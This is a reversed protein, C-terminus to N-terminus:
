HPKLVLRCLEGQKVQTGALPKQEVVVGTGSIQIELKLDKLLRLSKRLSLGKLDPMAQYMREQGLGNAVFNEDNGQHLEFNMERKEKVSMMDSLNSMVEQLAIMPLIIRQSSEVLGMGSKTEAPSPSFVPLKAFVFLLFKPKQRPIVSFVMQNKEYRRFNGSGTYFLNEVYLTGSSVPGEVMLGELLNRIEGAVDPDVTEEAVEPLLEFVKGDKGAIKDIARPTVRMGGIILSNLATVIHLPTATEAVSDFYNNQDAQFLQEDISNNTNSVFDVKLPDNLGLRDWLRLQSGLGRQNSHISWPLFEGQAEFRSQLLSADWFIRRISAPIHTPAALINDIEDKGYEHFTNPDYSPYGAAGIIKGTSCEMLLAAYKGDGNVGAQEAVFKELIKQIKMDLTLVLYEKAQAAKVPDPRQLDEAGPVMAGYENLLTNYSYEVGALGMSKGVFGLVHAATEKEPYYRVREKHLSIGALGLAAVAEEEEQSINKALWVRYSESDLVGKLTDPFVGFLPALNNAVTEPNVDRVNAYVSVRDLTVALEKFNRDYIVGRNDMLSDVPEDGTFLFSTGNEDGGTGRFFRHGLLLVLGALVLYFLLRGKGAKGTRLRSRKVM